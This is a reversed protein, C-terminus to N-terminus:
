YFMVGTFINFHPDILIGISRIHLEVSLMYIEILKYSYKLIYYSTGTNELINSQTFLCITSKIFEHHLHPVSRNFIKPTSDHRFM